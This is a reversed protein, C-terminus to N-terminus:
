THLTKPPDGDVVRHAEIFYAVVQSCDHQRVAQVAATPMPLAIWIAGTPAIVVPGTPVTRDVLFTAALRSGM